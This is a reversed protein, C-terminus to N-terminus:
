PKEAVWFKEGTKPPQSQVSHCVVVQDKLRSAPDFPGSRKGRASSVPCPTCHVVITKLFNRINVFSRIIGRVKKGDFIKAGCVYTTVVGRDGRYM